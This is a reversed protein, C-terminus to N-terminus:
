WRTPRCAGTLMDLAYQERGDGLDIDIFTSSFFGHANVSVVATAKGTTNPRFTGNEVLMGPYVHYWTGFQSQQKKPWSLSRVVKGNKEKVDLGKRSFCVDAPKHNKACWFRAYRLANTLVVFPRKEETSFIDKLNGMHMICVASLVGVLGFVLLVEVLTFGSRPDTASRM